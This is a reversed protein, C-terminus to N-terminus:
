PRVGFYRTWDVLAPSPDALFSLTSEFVASKNVAGLNVKSLDLSNREKEFAELNLGQAFALANTEM